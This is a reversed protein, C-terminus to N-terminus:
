FCLVLQMCGVECASISTTVILHSKLLINEEKFRGSRSRPGGLSWNLPYRRHNKKKKQSKIKKIHLSSGYYQIDHTEVWPWM